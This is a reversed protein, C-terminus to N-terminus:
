SSTPSSSSSDYNILSLETGFLERLSRARKRLRSRRRSLVISVVMCEILLEKCKRAGKVAVMTVTCSAGGNNAICYGDVCLQEGNEDCLPHEPEKRCLGEVARRVYTVKEKAEKEDSRITTRCGSETVTFDTGGRTLIGALAGDINFVGSGSAGRFADINTVFYDLYEKRADVVRGGGDIKLPIGGGSNVAILPEGTEVTAVSSLPAVSQVRTTAGDIRLWAYDGDDEGSSAVISIIEHVDPTSVAIRNDDDFYYGFVVRDNEFNKDTLCHKSTLVLGHGWYVGSCFAASRQAAFPEGSCLQEIEEWTPIGRFTGDLLSPIRYARVLVVAKTEFIQRLSERQIEFYDKRDDNGYVL